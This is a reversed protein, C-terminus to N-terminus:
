QADWLHCSVPSLQCTVACWVADEYKGDSRDNRLACHNWDTSFTQTTQLRPSLPSKVAIILRPFDNERWQRSMIKTVKLSDHCKRNHIRFTVEHSFVHYSVPFCAPEPQKIIGSCFLEQKQIFHDLQLKVVDWPLLASPPPPLLMIHARLKFELSSFFCCSFRPPPIM